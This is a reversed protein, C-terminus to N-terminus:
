YEAMPLGIEPHKFGIFCFIPLLYFSANYLYTDINGISDGDDGGDDGGGGCDLDPSRPISM